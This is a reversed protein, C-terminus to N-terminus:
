SRRVRSFWPVHAPYRNRILIDKVALMGTDIIKSEPLPPVHHSQDVINYAVQVIQHLLDADPNTM